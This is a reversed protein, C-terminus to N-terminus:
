REKSLATSPIISADYNSIYMSLTLWMDGGTKIERGGLFDLNRASSHFSSCKKGKSFSAM